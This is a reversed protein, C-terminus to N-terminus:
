ENLKYAVDQMTPFQNGVITTVFTEVEQGDVFQNGTIQLHNTQIGLANFREYITKVDDYMQENTYSTADLDIKYQIGKPVEVARFDPEWQLTNSIDSKMVAITTSVALVNSLDEALQKSVYTDAQEQLRKSTDSDEKLTQIADNLVAYDKEARVNMQVPNRRNENSVVTFSYVDKKYDYAGNKVEYYEFPYTKMLYSELSITARQKAYPTKYFHVYVVSAAVVFVLLGIGILWKQYAKM